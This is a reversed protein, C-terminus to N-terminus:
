FVPSLQNGLSSHLNVTSPTSQQSNENEHLPQHWDDELPIVVAILVFWLEGLWDKLKEQIV